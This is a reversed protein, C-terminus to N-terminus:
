RRWTGPMLHTASQEAQKGIVVDVVEGQFEGFDVVGCITASTGSPYIIEEDDATAGRTEVLMRIRQGGIFGRWSQSTTQRVM